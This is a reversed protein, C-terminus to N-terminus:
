AAGRASNIMGVVTNYANLYQNWLYPVANSGTTFEQQLYADPSAPNTTVTTVPNIYQDGPNPPQQSPNLDAPNTAAAQQAKLYAGVQPNTAGAQLTAQEAQGLTQGQQTVVAPSTVGPHGTPIAGVRGANDRSMGMPLQGQPQPAQTQPKYSAATNAADQADKASPKVSTVKGDSLVGLAQSLGPSSQPNGTELAQVLPQYKGNLLEEATSQLSQSWNQFQQAGSNTAHSGGQPMVVGLPNMNQSGVGGLQGALTAMFAINSATVPLGMYGLLAAAWQSNTQFPGNPVPGLALKPTTEFAYQTNRQAVKAQYQAQQQQEAGAEQQYGQQREQGQIAAVAKDIESQTPNRGLLSQAMQQAAYAVDDPNTLNIQYNQGGGLVPSPLTAHSAAGAGSNINNQIVQTMPMHQQAADALARAFATWSQSDYSGFAPATTMPSGDGNVYFGGDWLMTELEVLAPQPLEYFDQLAQGITTPQGNLGPLDAGPFSGVTVPITAVGNSGQLSYQSFGTLDGSILPNTNTATNPTPSSGGLGFNLGSSGLTNANQGLNQVDSPPVTTPSTNTSM